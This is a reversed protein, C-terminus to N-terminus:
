RKIKEGKLELNYLEVITENAIDFMLRSGFIARTGSTLYYM